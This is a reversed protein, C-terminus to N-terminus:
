ERDVEADDVDRRSGGGLAHTWIGESGSSEGM